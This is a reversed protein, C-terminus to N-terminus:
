LIQKVTSLCPCWTTLPTPIDNLRCFLSLEWPWETYRTGIYFYRFTVDWSLTTFDRNDVIHTELYTQQSESSLLIGSDRCLLDLEDFWPKTHVGSVPTAYRYLWPDVCPPLIIFHPWPYQHFKTSAQALEYFERAHQARFLPPHVVDLREPTIQFLGCVCNFTVYVWTVTSHTMYWFCWHRWFFPGNWFSIDVFHISLCQFCLLGTWIFM